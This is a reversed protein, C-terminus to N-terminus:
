SKGGPRGNSADTIRLGNLKPMEQRTETTAITALQRLQIRSHRADEANKEEISSTSQVSFRKEGSGVSESDQESTTPELSPDGASGLSEADRSNRYEGSARSSVSMTSRPTSFGDGAFLPNYLGQRLERIRRVWTNKIDANAARFDIRNDNSHASGIRLAFRNPDVDVHEVVTVENLPIPKGKIFFRLKGDRSEAKEIKKAFIFALEFLFVQREKGKGKFYKTGSEWVTLADQMVFPGVHDLIEKKELCSLNMLDNARRTVGVVIEDAEKFDEASGKYHKILQDLVLHYRTIRQVPKILLSGLDDKIDLRYRDQATKFFQKVEPLDLLHNHLHKNLCYETYYEAITNVYVIFCSGVQEPDDEYKVIDQLFKEAHFASIMEINAFINHRQDKLAEPLTLSASASDYEAIYVQCCRQLAEVYDRETQILERMPERIKDDVARPPLKNEVNSDSLRDLSLEDKPGMKGNGILSAECSTVRRSFEDFRQRLEQQCRRVDDVHLPYHEDGAIVEDGLRIMTQIETRKTKVDMKWGRFENYIQAREPESLQAQAHRTFRSLTAEAEGNFWDVLEARHADILVYRQCRDLQKKKRAWLELLLSQRVQLEEKDRRVEAEQQRLRAVANSIRHAPMRDIYKLLVDATKHAYTCGKLFKDKHAVHKTMLAAMREARIPPAERAFELCLDQHEAKTYDQRLEELTPWIGHQFARFYQAASKLLKSREEVAAGYNRSSALVAENLGVVMNRELLPTRLLGEYLAGFQEALMNTEAETCQRKQDNQQAMNQTENYDIPLPAPELRRAAEQFIHIIHNAIVLCKNYNKVAEIRQETERAVRMVQAEGVRLGQQVQTIVDYVIANEKTRLERGALQTQLAHNLETADAFLKKVAKRVQVINERHFPEVKEANQIFTPTDVMKQMDEEWNQIQHLIETADSLFNAYKLNAQFFTRRHQWQETYLQNLRVIDGMLRNVANISVAYNADNRDGHRQLIAILNEGESIITSYAETTSENEKVCQQKQRECEEVDADFRLGQFKLNVESYWSTLEEYHTHFLVSNMLLKSREQARGKFRDIKRALESALTHTQQADSGGIRHVIEESTAALKEANAYQNQAAAQFQKFHDYLVVAADRSDGISVNRALFPEGYQELWRVISQYDAQFVLVALMATLRIERDKWVEHLKKHERQVTTMQTKPIGAALERDPLQASKQAQTLMSAQNVAVVYIEEVRGWFRRHVEIAEDLRESSRADITDPDVGPNGLWNPLELLYAQTAQYFDISFQILIKRNAHLQLLLKWEDAIKQATAEVRNKMTPVITSCVRAALAGINKRVDDRTEISKAHEEFRKWRERAESENTGVDGMKRMLAQSEERIWSLIQDADREFLKLQVLTELEIRRNEWMKYVDAKLQQLSHVLNTLNPLAAELDPNAPRGPRLIRDQVRQAKQQIAEIPVALIGKKIAGHREIAAQATPVDVPSEADTIQKRQAELKRMEDIINAIWRELELRTDLWEAHDYPFSGGFERILQTGEFYKPLTDVGVKQVEFKCFGASIQTKLKEGLKDPNILFVGALAGGEDILSNIAKLMPRVNTWTQKGRMDIVIIFGRGKAEEACVECLYLLVSRVHDPNVTVDRSPFVILPHGQRDRCGPLLAVEDRLVQQIDEARVSPEGSAPIMSSYHLTRGVPGEDLPM